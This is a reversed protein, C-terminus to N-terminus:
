QPRTRDPVKTRRLGRARLLLSVGVWAAAAGIPYAVLRPLLLTAVGFLMLLIGAAAIFRWESAGIVRHRALTAGVASGLGVATALLRSASGRGRYRPPGAVEDSTKNKSELLVETANELDRRYQAEMERALSEDHITVDLERNSIWSALNSNSSGVRSWCGDAVASKAHMMPGNWEFVRVGAELLPRYAARSITRVLKLNSANPVLIRVDVGAQAAATLARVYGTTAVFYADWLWLSREVIEAVLQELRYLGMSDPQGAIIWVAIGGAPTEPNPLPPEGTPIVAGAGASHWSDAFAQSLYAAAPGRLEIAIDRWGPIGHVPDGLWDQAICLGGTFGISGDICLVKRHDRSVWQLPNGLQPPNYCRVEVGASGLARWFSGPTKSRCGLWDYLVKCRVGRKAAATLADAFSQGVADAKILYNELEVSREAAAIADLWVPYNGAGDQLLRVQNGSFPRADAVRCFSGSALADLTSHRAAPPPPHDQDM